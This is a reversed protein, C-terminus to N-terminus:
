ELERLKLLCRVQMFPILIIGIRGQSDDRAEKQFGVICRVVSCEGSKEGVDLAM